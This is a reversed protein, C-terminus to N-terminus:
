KKLLKWTVKAVTLAENLGPISTFLHSEAEEEHLPRIVSLGADSDQSQTGGQGQGQGKRAPSGAPLFDLNQVKDMNYNQALEIGGRGKAAGSAAPSAPLTCTTFDGELLPAVQAQTQDQAQRQALAERRVSAARHQEELAERIHGGLEQACQALATDDLARQVKHASFEPNETYLCAKALRQPVVDEEPLSDYGQALAEAAEEYNGARICSEAVALFPSPAEPDQLLLRAYAVRAKHWLTARAFSHGAESLYHRYKQLDGKGRWAAALGLEAEGKLSIQHLARQFSQIAENWQRQQLYHLGASFSKEPSAIEALSKEYQGLAAEFAATGLHLRGEMGRQAARGQNLAHLTRNLNEHSYPRVLLGSFGSALARLSEAETNNGVVALIPLGLLRPHLRLLAALQAGSMDALRNHCLVLDVPFPKDDSVEEALLRATHVGSTLIRIHQIGVERLARRDVVANSDADVLLLASTFPHRASATSM